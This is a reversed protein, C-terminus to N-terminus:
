GIQSQLATMNLESTGMEHGHGTGMSPGLISDPDFIKRILRVM